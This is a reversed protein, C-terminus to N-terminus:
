HTLRFERPKIQCKWLRIQCKWQLHNHQWEPVAWCVPAIPPCSSLFNLVPFQVQPANVGNVLVPQLDGLLLLAQPGPPCCVSWSGAISLSFQSLLDQKIQSVTPEPHPSLKEIYIIGSPISCLPPLWVIILPTWHHVWLCHVCTLFNLKFLLFFGEKSHHHKFVLVSQPADKRPSILFRVLCQWLFRSYTVRSQTLSTQVPLGGSTGEGDGVTQSELSIIWKYTFGCVGGFRPFKLALFCLSFSLKSTFWGVWAYFSFANGMDKILENEWLVAMVVDVKSHWLSLNSNRHVRWKKIPQVM